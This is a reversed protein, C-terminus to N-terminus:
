SFKKVMQKILNLISRIIRHDSGARAPVEIIELKM